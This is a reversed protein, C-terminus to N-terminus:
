RLVEVTIRTGRGVASSVRFEGGLAEARERMNILGWGKHQVRQDSSEALLDTDFGCGDDAIRLHVRNHQTHVSIRVRTAQAHKASNVLAEQAIRFLGNEVSVDLRPEPEQGVVTINLDTWLSFQSTYWNLASVLGYDDLVPPRLNTVVRRISEATQEVLMLAQNVRERIEAAAPVDATIQGRVINLNIGLATLDRGVQDHLERALEKRENEQAETVRTALARMTESQRTVEALLRAKEDEAAQRETVQQQLHANAQELAATRDAVQIELEHHAWRLQEENEKRDTIDHLLWRLGIMQGTKSRIGTVTLAVPFVNHIEPQLSLEEIHAVGGYALWKIHAFFRERSEPVVFEALSAGHLTEAQRKLLAAAAHNVALMIGMEDTVIYPEPAFAFLEEYHAKEASLAHWTKNKQENQKVLEATAARIDAQLSSLKRLIIKSQNHQLKGRPQSLGRIENLLVELEPSIKTIDM